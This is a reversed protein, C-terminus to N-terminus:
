EVDMFEEPWIIEQDSWQDQPWFEVEILEGGKFAMRRVRPCARLHIGGCHACKSEAYRAKLERKEDDTLSDESSRKM